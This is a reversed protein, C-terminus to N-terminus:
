QTVLMGPATARVDARAISDLNRTVIDDPTPNTSAHATGTLALAIVVLLRVHMRINGM